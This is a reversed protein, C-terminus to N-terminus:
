PKGNKEQNRSIISIYQEEFVDVQQKITFHNIVKKRAKHGMAKRKEFDHALIHLQEAMQYHDYTAALMGDKENEIVEEMGGSKTAVVPLEMAMAELCVNAIGEYVSPLFYIDVENYLALVEDRNKKGLIEVHASLDLAHIHYLVEEMGPGDGVIRWIFDVGRNKLEEMALLGLLYGKQFTFRGISLIQITSSTHTYPKSRKFIDVDISPRNIFIKEPHNCYSSITKAMDASVCHISDVNDFLQRLNEARGKETIAKVKEATGRCSVVTKSKIKPFAGMYSVALGSFEFHVIDYPYKTLLTLQLAAKYKKKLMAKDTSLSKIFTGPNKSLSKLIKSTTTVETFSLIEIGAKKVAALHSHNIHGGSQNTIVTIRHGRASLELVKTTIFTETLAPFQGTVICIHLKSNQM